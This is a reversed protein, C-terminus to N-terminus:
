KKGLEELFINIIDGRNEPDTLIEGLLEDEKALDLFADTLKLIDEANM